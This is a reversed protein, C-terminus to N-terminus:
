TTFATAMMILLLPITLSFYIIYTILVVAKNNTYTNWHYYLVGTFIVYFAVVLYFVLSMMDGVPLNPAFTLQPLAVVPSTDM